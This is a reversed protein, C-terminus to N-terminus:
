ARGYDVVVDFGAERLRQQLAASNYGPVQISQRPTRAMVQEYARQRARAAAQESLAAVVAADYARCSLATYRRELFTWAGYSLYDGRRYAADAYRYAVESRARLGYHLRLLDHSNPM